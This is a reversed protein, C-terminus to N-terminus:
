DLPPKVIWGKPRHSEAKKATAAKKQAEAARKAALEAARKEEAAKQAAAEAKKTEAAKRAARQAARRAETHRRVRYDSKAIERSALSTADHSLASPGADTPPLLGRAPKAAAAKLVLGGASLPPEERQSGRHLLVGLLGTGALALGAALGILPGRRHRAARQEASVTEQMALSEGGAAARGSGASPAVLPPLTPQLGPGDVEKATEARDVDEPPVMQAAAVLEAVFDEVRAFRESPAKALARQIAREVALPVHPNAAPLPRAPEYIVNHLASVPTEGAFAPAGALMEFLISGLAFIDTRHDIEALTGRAQEPSMYWPTGLVTEERTIGESGLLKSIGFDLVKVYDRRDDQTTLFINQPKLDRHVVGAKHACALAAAVQQTISLATALPLQRQRQLRGFLDEGELLEMVIYPHGSPSSNYDFVEIIHRHKLRSAVEAERRFRALADPRSFADGKLVKIAFRRPLRAHTAEYVSGMGGEGLLRVIRYTDALVVGMWGDEGPPGSVGQM